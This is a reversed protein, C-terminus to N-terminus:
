QESCRRDQVTRVHGARKQLYESSDQANMCQKSNDQMNNITRCLKYKGASDQVAMAHGAIDQRTM